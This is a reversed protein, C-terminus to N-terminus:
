QSLAGQRKYKEALREMHIRSYIRRKLSEPSNHKYASVFRGRRRLAEAKKYLSRNVCYAKVTKWPVASWVGEPYVYRTDRIVGDMEGVLMQALNLNACRLYDCSRGQRPNLELCYSKEKDRIIDFNAIGTYKISELLAILKYCIEDPARTVIASYNGTSTDGREELLVDGLVARVVKGTSDSYTTFVSSEAGANLSRGVFEQILVKGSYGSEFIRRCIRKAEPLTYAFYVKKMNEFPTKWYLSSDAPKIVFPPKMGFCQREVDEALVSVIHTKPHPVSYKDMLHTFSAKDSVARWCEFSPVHFYFHGCLSDRAYELMEMYWDACPVLLLREGKHRKAFSKLYKVATDVDDLGKVVRQKVYKSSSILLKDRAIVYSQVGFADAFAMAMSYANLDGGLLVPTLKEM